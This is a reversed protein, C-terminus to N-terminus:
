GRRFLKVTVTETKPLSKGISRKTTGIGTVHAQRTVVNLHMNGRKRTIPHRASYDKKPDFIHIREMFFQLGSTDDNIEFRSILAPAIAFHVDMIWITVANTKHMATSLLPM